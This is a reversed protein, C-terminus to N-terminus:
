KKIRQLEIEVMHATPIREFQQNLTKTNTLLNICDYIFNVISAAGVSFDSIITKQFKKTTTDDMIKLELSEDTVKYEDKKGEEVTKNLIYIHMDNEETKQFPSSRDDFKCNEKEKRYSVIKKQNLDEQAVAISQKLDWDYLRLYKKVENEKLTPFEYLMKHIKFESTQNQMKLQGDKQPIILRKPALLLSSGSFGNWQRLKTANVNYFLCIGQITSSPLVIHEVYDVGFRCGQPCVDIAKSQLKIYDKIPSPDYRNELEDNKQPFFLSKETSLINKHFNIDKSVSSDRTISSQPLCSSSKLTCYSGISGQAFENLILPRKMSIAVDELITFM